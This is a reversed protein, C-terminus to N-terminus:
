GADLIRALEGRVRALEEEARSLLEATHLLRGTKAEEEMEQALRFLEQAGIQGASKLSHASERVADVNGQDNAGHIQTLLNEASTIFTNIVIPFRDKTIERLRSITQVNISSSEPESVKEKETKAGAQPRTARKNKPLWKELMEIVSEEIIPKALYDNMGAALCRERDGKMANATLAVVIVDDSSYGSKRIVRTALFGDMEPMQCDMFVLDFQRQRVRNVAEYGNEAIVTSIGYDKLIATMVEQNVPSDEALLIVVDRYYFNDRSREGARDERITYRTVMELETNNERANWLIRIVALLESPRLPKVLYGKIGAETIAEADSRTPQSTGLIIQLGALGQEAKIQKAIDIGTLGPMIYDLILFDFPATRAAELLVPLAQQPDQLAVAEMGYSRIVDGIIECSISHDDLILVKLPKGNKNLSVTELQRNQNEMSIKFPLVGIFVTGKTEVSEFGIDGGIIEILQKTIALGLGTGGYRRTISNDAQDFKRFINIQRNKPIGVGTDEVMIQIECEDGERSVQSIELLVHGKETFKVANSCLNLLIQRIRGPDGILCHPCDPRFRLFFEIKKEQTRMSMIEAIEECLAQLDFPINELEMMGAEIKSFDLIDNIIQMLSEASSEVTEVYHRQRTDLDTNLLLHSMGMVGNMPTRIEHSMNALFESKAENAREAEERAMRIERESEKRRTIDDAYMIIGGSNGDKLYWPIVDWHLWITKSGIQVMDEGASMSGTDLCELLIRKWRLPMVPFIELHNKGIIEKELFNFDSLWRDSVMIYKMDNDCVAISAPTHKIFYIMQDRSYRAVSAMQRSRLAFYLCLTLITSLMCGIMLVIDAANSKKEKIFQPTPTVTFIWKQNAVSIQSTDSVSYKNEKNKGLNSYIFDHDDETVNLWVGDDINKSTLMENFFDSAKFSVLTFGRYSDDIFLPAIYAYGVGGQTFELIETMQTKRTRTATEIARIRRKEFALLFGPSHNINKNSLWWKVKSDTDAISIARLYNFDLLHQYADKKWQESDVDGSNEIRLDFRNVTKYLEDLAHSCIDEIAKTQAEVLNILQRDDNKVAMDWM